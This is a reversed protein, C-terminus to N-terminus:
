LNEKFEELIKISENLGAKDDLLINFYPKNCDGWNKVPSENIYQPKIGYLDMIHAKYVLSQDDAVSFLCLIVNMKLSMLLTVVKDCREKIYDIQNFSFITDDFDVGIIINNHKKYAEILLETEYRM